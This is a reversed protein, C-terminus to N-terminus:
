DNLKFKTDIEKKMEGASVTSFSCVDTWGDNSVCLKIPPWSAMGFSVTGAVERIDGAKVLGSCIEESIGLGKEGYTYVILQHYIEKFKSDRDDNKFDKKIVDVEHQMIKVLEAQNAILKESDLIFSKTPDNNKRSLIMHECLSGEKKGKNSFTCKYDGVGNLTCKSSIELKSSDSVMNCGTFNLAILIFLFILKLM